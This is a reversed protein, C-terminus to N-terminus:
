ISSRIETKAAPKILFFGLIFVLVLVAALFIFLASFGAQNVATGSFFAMSASGLGCLSGIMALTVGRDEMAVHRVVMATMAPIIGAGFFGLALRLLNLSLYKTVFAHPIYILGCALICFLFVKRHGTKDGLRGLTLAGLVTGLGAVSFIVGIRTMDTSSDGLFGAFFVPLLPFLLAGSSDMLFRLSTLVRVSRSNWIIRLPRMFTIAPRNAPDPRDARILFFVTLAALLHILGTLLYLKRFGFHDALLGGFAPGIMIAIPMASQLFGFVQGTRESPTVRTMYAMCATMFGGFLGHLIRIFLLQHVNQVFATLFLCVGAGTMARIVMKKHGYRDGVMGWFPMSLIPPFM